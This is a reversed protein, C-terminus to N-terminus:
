ARFVKLVQDIGEGLRDLEQRSNYLAMSARTTAPVGFFDMVPQACHHGTRVAIGEQDLITGADHPHVGELVFSLVGARHEAMGIMQLRPFRQLVELGYATLDAEHAVIREMGIRSVYELAAGLGIVGAINPTGAEFKYPLDNYTTKEFTVSRIMDGGGQYPPMKDLLEEKGYLVGIGTPGYIKHGSFAYFDVDLAQVDVAQHSVAQAGDVLVPIGRQHALRIIKEIPNITGLANSQHVVSVLRTRDSLLSEMDDMLLEGKRNMPVVNLRAGTQRCVMQWPVINSHHEMATILVEDGDQLQNGGWSQAVLNVAETTGRVFIIECAKRANLFQKVRLRCREYAETALQSLQHVGRHINSNERFYYRELAQVVSRPKQKTAANDLYVLPKGHVLRSLIPFDQRIQDLESALDTLGPVSKRTLAQGSLTM